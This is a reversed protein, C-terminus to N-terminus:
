PNVNVKFVQVYEDQHDLIGSEPYHSLNSTHPIDVSKVYVRFIGSNEPTVEIDFFYQSGPHIPRSMAEISPYQAITKEVGGSYRAGVEEGIVIYDPSQTFDYRVIQVHDGIVKLDPFAVSVIHIDGYEGRNGSEIELRFSEGLNIESHSLKGEFYPQPILHENSLYMEPLVFVTLTFYIIIFFGIIPLVILKKM